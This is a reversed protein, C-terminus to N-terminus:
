LRFFFHPAAALAARPLDVILVKVGLAALTRQVHATYTYLLCDTVLEYVEIQNETRGIALRNLPLNDVQRKYVDRTQNHYWKEFSEKTARKYRGVKILEFDENADM